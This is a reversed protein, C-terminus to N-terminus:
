AIKTLRFYKKGKELSGYIVNTDHPFMVLWKKESAFGLIREKEKISILPQMDYASIWTFPIHQSLPMLDGCFFFPNTPDDILVMQQGPTHGDSILINIGPFLETEGKILNLSGAEKLPQFIEKMYSARDLMSPSLAWNYNKEQIHYTANSFLPVSKSNNKIIVGGCHDFHLHTIIVDTIDDISFGLGSLTKQIIKDESQIKYIHKMKENLLDGVGTDVLIKRNEGVILLSRLAMSVRNNQDCEVQKNWIVKPVLGFVAGGDLAFRGIDLPYIDYKGVKIM